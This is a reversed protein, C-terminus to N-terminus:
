PLPPHRGMLAGEWPGALSWTGVVPKVPTLLCRLPCVAQPRSAYVNETVKSALTPVECNDGTAVVPREWGAAQKREGRGKRRARQKLETYSGMHKISM